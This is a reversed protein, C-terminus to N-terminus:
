RGRIDRSRCDRYRRDGGNIHQVQKEDGIERLGEGVLQELADDAIGPAFLLPGDAPHRGGELLLDAQGAHDLEGPVPAGVGHDPLELLRVVDAQEALVADHDNGLVELLAELGDGVDRRVIQAGAQAPM